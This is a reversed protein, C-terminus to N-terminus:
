TVKRIVSLFINRLKERSLVQSQHPLKKEKKESSFFGKASFLFFPLSHTDSSTFSAKKGSGTRRHSRM